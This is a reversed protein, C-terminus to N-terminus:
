VRRLWCERWYPYAARPCFWRRSSLKGTCVVGDLTVCDTKLEVMTAYRDDIFRQVRRRVRFRGGCYAMMERDFWLGRNYGNVNLTRAIEAKSKVQVLEGPLLNLPEEDPAKGGAPGALHATPSMGLKRLPEEVAARATVALFEKFQVNGCTYERLYPRPDFTGLRATAQLLETAQCSWLDEAVGQVHSGKRVHQGTRALLADFDAQSAGIPASQASLGVDVRRLWAENWFYRCEAQCGGHASGDCRLDALLVADHLRRSGTYKITDCIKEARRDVTFRKGCFRVMEPMYPLNGVTGKADLTALIEAPPRVEVLDGRQLPGVSM